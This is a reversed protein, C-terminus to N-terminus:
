TREVMLKGVSVFTRGKVIFSLEPVPANPQFGRMQEDRALQAIQPATRILTMWRAKVWDWFGPGDPEYGHYTVCIPNWDPFGMTGKRHRHESCWQGGEGCVPAECLILKIGPMGVACESRAPKGCDCSKVIALMLTVPANEITM